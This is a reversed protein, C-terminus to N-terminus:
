FYSSPHVPGIEYHETQCYRLYHLVQYVKMWYFHKQLIVVIEEVGFHGVVWSYHAEWILKARENSPVCIHGLHCLLGDQLHFNDVVVNAGLMQYTTAFDPNTEYLQPWGYTEHGCSELVMPLTTFPPRSLFDYVHNTRGIKYKINLYFQQL